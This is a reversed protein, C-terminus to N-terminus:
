SVNLVRLVSKGESWKREVLRIVVLMVKHKGESSLLTRMMFIKAVVAKSEMGIPMRAWDELLAADIVFSKPQPPKTGM